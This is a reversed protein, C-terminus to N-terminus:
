RQEEAMEDEGCKTTSRSKAPGAAGASALPTYGQDSLDEDMDPGFLAGGTAEANGGM